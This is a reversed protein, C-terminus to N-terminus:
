VVGEFFKLLFVGILSHAVVGRQYSLKNLLIAVKNVINREVGIDFLRYLLWSEHLFNKMVM